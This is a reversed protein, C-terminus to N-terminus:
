AAAVVDDSDYIAPVFRFAIQKERDFVGTRGANKM